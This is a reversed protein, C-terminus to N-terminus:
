FALKKKLFTKRPFRFLAIVNTLISKVKFSTMKVDYQSSGTSLNRVPATFVNRCKITHSHVKLSNILCIIIVIIIIILSLM